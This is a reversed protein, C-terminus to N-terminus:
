VGLADLQKELAALSAKYKQLGLLIAQRQRFDVDGDNQRDVPMKSIAIEFRSIALDIRVNLPDTKM